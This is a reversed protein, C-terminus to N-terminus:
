LEGRAQRAKRARIVELDLEANIKSQTPQPPFRRKLGEVRRHVSKAWEKSDRMRQISSELMVFLGAQSGRIIDIPKGAKRFRVKGFVVWRLHSGLCNYLDRARKETIRMEPQHAFTSRIKHLKMFAPRSHPSIVGLGIALGVKLDFNLREVDLAAPVTLAEHIATNLLQEM